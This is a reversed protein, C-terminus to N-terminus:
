PGGTSTYRSLAHSVAQPVSSIEFDDLEACGRAQVLLTLDILFWEM